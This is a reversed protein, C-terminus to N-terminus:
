LEDIAYLEPPLVDSLEVLAHDREGMYDVRLMPSRLGNSDQQIPLSMVAQMKGESQRLLLTGQHAAAVSRVLPIGLGLGERASGLSPSRLYRSFADPQFVADAELDNSVTLVISNRRRTLTIQVTGDQPTHKLANSLLNYVARELKQSDVLSYISVPHNEFVLQRGAERCLAAARDTLDRLVATVDRIEMRGVGASSADSMNGVLRLLQHLGQNMRCLAAEQANDGGSRNEVMRDFVTMVQNLPLRLEQAALALAQLSADAQEPELVFLDLGKFKSVRATMKTGGAIVSLFLVGGGFSACDEIGTNLLTDVSIGSCIGLERASRNAAIVKGQDACFAPQDLLGLTDKLETEM